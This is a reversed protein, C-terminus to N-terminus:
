IYQTSLNLTSLGPEVTLVGEYQAENIHCKQIMIQVLKFAVNTPKGQLLQLTSQYYPYPLPNSTHSDLIVLFDCWASDISLDSDSGGVWYYNYDHWCKCWQVIAGMLLMIVVACCHVINYQNSMYLDPQQPVWPYSTEVLLHMSYTSSSEDLWKPVNRAAMCQYM